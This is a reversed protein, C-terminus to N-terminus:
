RVRAPEFWVRSAKAQGPRSIKLDIEYPALPDITVMTGYVANAGRSMLDLNRIFPRGRPVTRTLTVEIRADGVRKGTQEDIVVVMLHRDLEPRVAPAATDVDTSRHFGSWDPGMAAPQFDLYVALGDVRQPADFVGDQAQTIWPMVGAVLGIIWMRASM